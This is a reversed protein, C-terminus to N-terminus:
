VLEIQIAMHFHVKRIFTWVGIKGDFACNGEEDFRPRSVASLFM